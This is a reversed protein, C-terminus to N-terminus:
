QLTRLMALTQTTCGKENMWAAQVAKNTVTKPIFHLTVKTKLGELDIHYSQGDGLPMLDPPAMKNSGAVWETHGRWSQDKSTVYVVASRDADPRWFVIPQGEPTCQNGNRTIDILWPDPVWGMKQASQVAATTDRTVGLASTSSQNLNAMSQLAASLGEKTDDKQISPAQNYPGALQLITGNASVLTVKQGSELKLPQTDHITQGPTLNVGTASFVILEAAFAPISVLMGVALGAGILFTRYM